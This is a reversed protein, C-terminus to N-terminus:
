RIYQAAQEYSSSCLNLVTERENRTLTYKPPHSSRHFINAYSTDYTIKAFDYIKKLSEQTKLLMNYDIVFLREDGFYNHLLQIQRLKGIYAYCARFLPSVGFKGFRKFSKLERGILESEGCGDFLENLPFRKWNYLMSRVVSEPERLVWIIKFPKKHEFYEDVRENLYTTQFCCRSKPNYNKLGALIQAGDLEDDNSTWFESFDNSQGIARRVVTTGSRQCGTVLVANAFDDLRAM